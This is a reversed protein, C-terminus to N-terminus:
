FSEEEESEAQKAAEWQARTIRLTRPKSGEFPGIFGAEEMADILRGARPYGIKLRRQILSASAYGMELAVEVAADLLDEEGGENKKVPAAAASAAAEIQQTIRADTGQYDQALIFSIVSEVEADSVFAGQARLSKNQDVPRYLMDGRGLLKEAGAGDIITRSDVQSSVAFAIRSPVNAKIVGTIVDVSPRQTAILLHIGAARAMASLRAISEEIEKACTAMLDALEDIVILILPIFELDRKAAVEKYGNYDRVNADSFLRYRRDMENVAWNLTNAAKKPDTVVPALLHPIGNFIKLEVVKPDVMLLKVEDPHAHYLISMLICNICVSKGSGTAGAILLHPMKRLDCLVPQGPIDRGLAVTLPSKAQKFREDSLIERLGVLSTEANPIEIGIASKGPIPAEIRVSIAALSLAIDDALNLIKSVKVGPAPALEFRTIAPGHSVHIVQADVGFSKLTQELRAARERIQDQQAVPSLTPEPKLLSLPPFQYVQDVRHLTPKGQLTASVTARATQKSDTTQVKSSDTAVAQAAEHDDADYDDPTDHDAAAGHPEPAKHGSSQVPDARRLQAAQTRIPARLHLNNANQQAAETPGIIELTELHAADAQNSQGEQQTSTHELSAQESSGGQIAEDSRSTQISRDVTEQLAEGQALHLQTALQARTAKEMEEWAQPDRILSRERAQNPTVEHVAEASSFRQDAGQDPCSKFSTPNMQSPAQTPDIPNDVACDELAAAGERLDGEQLDATRVPYFVGDAGEIQPMRVQHPTEESFLGMERWTQNRGREARAQFRGASRMLQANAQPPPPAVPLVPATLGQQTTSLTSDAEGREGRDSSEHAPKLSFSGGRIVETAETAPQALASASAAATPQASGAASAAVPAQAGGSLTHQWQSLNIQHAAKPQVAPRLQPAGVPVPSEAFEGSVPRPTQHNLPTQPSEERVRQSLTLRPAKSGLQTLAAKIQHFFQTLGKMVSIRLVLSTEIVLALILFLMGGIQGLFAQLSAAILGIGAGAPLAAQWAAGTPRHASVTWLARLLRSAKAGEQFPDAEHLLTELSLTSVQLLAGLAVLFLGVHIVRARSALRDSALALEVAVYALYFPLVAAIQGILGRLLTQLVRGLLGTGSPWFFVLGLFVAVVLFIAGTMERSLSFPKTAKRM